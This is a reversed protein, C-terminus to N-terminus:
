CHAFGQTGDEAGLLNFGLTTLWAKLAPPDPLEHGDEVSSHTWPWGTNSSVQLFNFHTLLYIFQLKPANSDAQSVKSVFGAGPM